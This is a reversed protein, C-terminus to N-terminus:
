IKTILLVIEDFLVNRLRLQKHNINFNIYNNENLKNSGSWLQSIWIM